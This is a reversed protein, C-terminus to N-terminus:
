QKLKAPSGYYIGPETINKLILSGAGILVNDTISVKEKIITGAGVFCCKGVNVNGCITVGPAITCYDGINCDHSINSQSYICIHDGINVNGSLTVNGMIINGTGICSLRNIYTDRHVINVFHYDKGLRLILDQKGKPYSFAIIIYQDCKEFKFNDICKRVPLGFLKRDYNREDIFGLVNTGIDNNELIISYADKALGEAGFLVIDKTTM